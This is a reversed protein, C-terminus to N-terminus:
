KKRHKWGSKQPGTTRASAASKRESPTAPRAVKCADAIACQIAFTPSHMWEAPYRREVEGLLSDPVVYSKRNM